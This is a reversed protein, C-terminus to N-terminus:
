DKLDPLSDVADQKATLACPRKDDMPALGLSDEGYTYLGEIDINPWDSVMQTPTPPNFVQSVAEGSELVKKVLAKKADDTWKKSGRRTVVLKHCGAIGGGDECRKKLETTALEIYKTVFKGATVVMSLFDDTVDAPSQLDPIIKALEAPLGAKVQTKQFEPCSLRCPCYLCEEGSKRKATQKKAAKFVKLFESTFMDINDRHYTHRDVTLRNTLPLQYIIGEVEDLGFHHALATAGYQIQGGTAEAEIRGTKLDVYIGKKEARDIVVFDLYTFAEGKTGPLDVKLETFTEAWDEGIVAVLSRCFNAYHLARQEEPIYEGQTKLNKEGEDHIKTGLAAPAGADQKPLTAALTVWGPCQITRDWSSAGYPSHPRESM